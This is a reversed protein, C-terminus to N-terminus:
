DGPYIFEVRIGSPENCMMHKAPGERLLEPAFEIKINNTQLKEHIDNLEKESDVTFAVHHLGINQNKDFATPETKEGGKTKWLTM